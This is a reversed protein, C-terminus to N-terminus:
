WAMATMTVVMLFAGAERLGGPRGRGGPPRACRLRGFMIGGARTVAWCAAVLLALGGTGAGAGHHQVAAGAPAAVATLLAMAALDSTEAARGRGPCGACARWLCAVVVAAVGFPLAAGSRGGPAPMLAMVATVLAHPGWGRVPGPLHGALCVVAAALGAVALLEHM